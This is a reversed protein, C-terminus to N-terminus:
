FVNIKRKHMPPCIHWPSSAILPSSPPSRVNEAQPCIDKSASTVCPGQSELNLEKLLKLILISMEM